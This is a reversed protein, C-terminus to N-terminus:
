YLLWHSYRTYCYDTNPTAKASNSLLGIVAIYSGCWGSSAGNEAFPAEDALGDERPGTLDM